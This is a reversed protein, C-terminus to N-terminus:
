LLGFSLSSRGFGDDESQAIKPSIGRAILLAIEEETLPEGANRKRLAEFFLSDERAQAQEEEDRREQANAFREEADLQAQLIAQQNLEFQAQKDQASLEFPSQFQGEGIKENRLEEIARKDQNLKITAGEFFDLLSAGVNAFPVLGIIRRWTPPDLIDEQEKVSIEAGELDGIDLASKTSFGLTQLAEEKIFGAFPYSGIISVIGAPSKAFNLMKETLGLTKTNTQFRLGLAPFQKNTIVEKGIQSAKSVSNPKFFNKISGLLGVSGVPSIPLTGAQVKIPQGNKDLNVENTFPNRELTNGFILDRVIDLTNRKPTIEQRISQRTDIPINTRRDRGGSSGTQLRSTLDQAQPSQPIGGQLINTLDNGSSKSKSSQIKKLEQEVNGSKVGASKLFDTGSSSSNGGRREEAKKRVREIGAKESESFVM